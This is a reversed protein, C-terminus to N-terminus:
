KGKPIEKGFEDVIIFIGQKDKSTLNHVVNLVKYYQNREELYILEGQRPIYKLKLSGKIPMWSKDLISISYKRFLNIM